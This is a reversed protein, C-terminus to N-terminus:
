FQTFSEELIWSFSSSTHGQLHWAVTKKKRERSNEPSWCASRLTRYQLVLTTLMRLPSTVQVPVAPGLGFSLYKVNNAVYSGMCKGMWGTVANSICVTTSGGATGTWSLLCHCFVLFWQWVRRESGWRHYHWFCWRGAQQRWRSRFFLM